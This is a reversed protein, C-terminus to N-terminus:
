PQLVGSIFAVGLLNVSDRAALNNASMDWDATYIIGSQMVVDLINNAGDITLSSGDGSADTLICKTVPVHHEDHLWRVNVRTGAHYRLSPVTKYYIRWKTDDEILEGSVYVIDFIEALASTTPNGIGAPAYISGGGIKQEGYSIKPVLDPASAQNSWGVANNKFEDPEFIYERYTASYHGGGERIILRDATPTVSNDLLYAPNDRLLAWQLNVPGASGIGASYNSPLNGSGIDEDIQVLNGNGDGQWRWIAWGNAVPDNVYYAAYLSAVGDTGKLLSKNEPSNESFILCRAELNNTAPSVADALKWQPRIHEVVVPGRAKGVKITGSTDKYIAFLDGSYSALSIPHRVSEQFRIERIEMSQYNYAYINFEDTLHKMTFYIENGHRTVSSPGGETDTLSNTFTKIAGLEATKSDPDYRWGRWNNGTGTYFVTHIYRKNKTDDFVPWLGINLSQSTTTPFTYLNNWSSAIGSGRNHILFESSQLIYIENEFLIARSQAMKNISDTEAGGPIGSTAGFKNFADGYNADAPTRWITIGSGGAAGSPVTGGFNTYETSLRNPSSPM